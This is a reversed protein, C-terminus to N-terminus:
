HSRASQYTEIIYDLNVALLPLHYDLNVALLPLHNKHSDLVADIMHEAEHWQRFRVAISDPHDLTSNRKVARRICELPETELIFFLPEINLATLVALQAYSDPFGELILGSVQAVAAEIQAVVESRTALEASGTPHGLGISCRHHIAVADIRPLQLKTAVADGLTTKGSCPPGLIVIAIPNM